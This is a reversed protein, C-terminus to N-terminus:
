PGPSRSRATSLSPWRENRRSMERRRTRLWYVRFLFPSAPKRSATCVTSLTASYLHMHVTYTPVQLSCRFPVFAGHYGCRGAPAPLILSPRCPEVQAAHLSLFSFVFKPHRASPAMTTHMCAPCAVLGGGESEMGAGKKQTRPRWGVCSEARSPSM